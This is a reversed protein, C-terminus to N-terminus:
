PKVALYRSGIAKATSRCLKASPSDVLKANGELKSGAESDLPWSGALKDALRSSDPAPLTEKRVAAYADVQYVGAKPITVTQPTSLDKAVLAGTTQAAAGSDLLLGDNYKAATVTIRFRGHDPLERLPIKFNAHPGYTGEGIFLEDSPIAPRLLLGQPVTEYANGKPYGSKGRLDAFVAHYISDYERWGRVTDNGAYGEIFRYKTRMAFPTFPFPKVPAPQTVMFDKNDLLTSGAGLVLKEPFPNPNVSEGLDMRFSQIIPKSKADVISRNLAEEAIEFYAELLLPSLQLTEKNNVFGDSSVADPPLAETLDDDLKLLERLTNRYQAVTLRRVLGNKPTPRSRAVDLAHAVWEVMRQRDASSPQPQGKPPMTGDGIKKQIHEWLKLHRDELAADLHDVRVGSIATDVNHCRICNQKFFPKVIHEFSPALAM